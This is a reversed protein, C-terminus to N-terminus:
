LLNAGAMQKTKRGIPDLATLRMDRYYHDLSVSRRHREDAIIASIRLPQLGYQQALQECSQGTQQAIFIARNRGATTRANL